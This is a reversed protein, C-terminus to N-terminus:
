IVGTIQWSPNNKLNETLSCRFTYTGEPVLDRKNRLFFHAKEQNVELNTKKKKKLQQQQQFTYTLNGSRLMFQNFEFTLLDLYSLPRSGHLGDPFFFYLDLLM